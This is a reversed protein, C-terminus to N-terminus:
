LEELNDRKKNISDYIRKLVYDQKNPMDVRFTMLEISASNCISQVRYDRYRRKKQLHTPDNLEILLLVESYDKTFIAFDINRFLENQYRSSSNKKIIAALNVQPVIRYMEELPMLKLYFQYETDTMLKKPEYYNEISVNNKEIKEAVIEEEMEEKQFVFVKLFLLIALSLFLIFIILPIYEM